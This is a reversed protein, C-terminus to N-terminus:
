PWEQRPYSLPSGPISAARHKGKDDDGQPYWIEPIQEVKRNVPRKKRNAGSGIGDLRQLTSSPLKSFGPEFGPGIGLGLSNGFTRESDSSNSDSDEEYLDVNFQVRRRDGVEPASMEDDSALEPFAKPLFTSPTTPTMRTFTNPGFTVESRASMRMRPSGARTESAARTEVDLRADKYTDTARGQSLVGSTHRRSYDVRKTQQNTTHNATVNQRITEVRSPDENARIEPIVHQEKKSKSDSRPLQNSQKIQGDDRQDSRANQAWTAIEAQRRGREVDCMEKREQDKVRKLEEMDEDHLKLVATLQIKDMRHNHLRDALAVEMTAAAEHYEIIKQKRAALAFDNFAAGEKAKEEETLVPGIYKLGPRPTQPPTLPPLPKPVQLARPRGQPLQVGQPTQSSRTTSDSRKQDNGQKYSQEVIVPKDDTRGKTIEGAGMGTQVPRLRQREVEMGDQFMDEALKRTHALTDNHEKTIKRLAEPDSSASTRNKAFAQQAETM